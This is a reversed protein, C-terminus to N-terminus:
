KMPGRARSAANKSREAPVLFRIEVIRFRDDASAQIVVDVLRDLGIAIDQLARLREPQREHARVWIKHDIDAPAKEEASARDRVGIRM